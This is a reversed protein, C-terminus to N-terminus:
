IYLFYDRWNIFNKGWNEYLAIYQNNKKNGMRFTVYNLTTPLCACGLQSYCACWLLSYVFLVGCRGPLRSTLGIGSNVFPYKTDFCVWFHTYLLKHKLVILM